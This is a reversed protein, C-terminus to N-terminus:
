VRSGKLGALHWIGWPYAKFADSLIVELSYVEIKRGPRKNDDCARAPRSFGAEGEIGDIGLPLPTIDFGKTWVGTLEKVPHVFRLGERNLSNRRGDCDLLAVADLCGTGGNACDRLYVIM